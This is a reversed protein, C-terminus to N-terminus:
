REVILDLNRCTPRGIETKKEGWNERKMVEKSFFERNKGVFRNESRRLEQRKQETSRGKRQM